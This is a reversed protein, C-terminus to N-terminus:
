QWIDIFEEPYGPEFSIVLMNGSQDNNLKFKLDIRELESCYFFQSEIIGTIGGDAFFESAWDMISRLSTEYESKELM